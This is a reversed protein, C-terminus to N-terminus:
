IVRSVRKIDCCVNSFNADTLVNIKEKLHESFTNEGQVSNRIFGNKETM